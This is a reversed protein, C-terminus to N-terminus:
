AKPIKYLVVRVFTWLLYVLVALMGTLGLIEGIIEIQIHGKFVISLVLGIPFCLNLVLFIWNFIKYGRPNPLQFFAMFTLLLWLVFVFVALTGGIVPVYDHAFIRSMWMMMCYFAIFTLGMFVFALIRMTPYIREMYSGPICHNNQTQHLRVLKASPWKGILFLSYPCLLITPVLYRLWNGLAHTRFMLIHGTTLYAVGSAFQLVGVLAILGIGLWILSRMSKPLQQNAPHFVLLWLWACGAVDVVIRLGTPAYLFGRSYVQVTHFIAWMTVFLSLISLAITSYKYLKTVPQVAEGVCRLSAILAFLVSVLYLWTYLLSHIEIHLPNGWIHEIYWSTVLSTQRVIEGIAYLSLAVASLSFLVKRTKMLTPM